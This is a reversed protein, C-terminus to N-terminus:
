HLELDISNKAVTLANAAAAVRSGFVAAPFRQWVAEESTLSVVSFSAKFQTPPGDQPPEFPTSRMTIAFGKYSSYTTTTM